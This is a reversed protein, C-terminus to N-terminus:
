AAEVETAQAEIQKAPGGKKITAAIMSLPSPEGPNVNVTVGSASGGEQPAPQEIFNGCADMKGMLETARIAADMNNDEVAADIIRRLHQRVEEQHDVVIEAKKEAVKNVIAETYQALAEAIYPKSMLKTVANGAQKPSYDPKDYAARYADSKSM